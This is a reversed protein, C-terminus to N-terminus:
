PRRGVFELHLEECATLRNEQKLAHTLAEILTDWKPEEGTLEKIALELSTQQHGFAQLQVIDLCGVDEDGENILGETYFVALQFYAQKVYWIAQKKRKGFIFM